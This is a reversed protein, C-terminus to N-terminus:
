VVAIGPSQKPPSGNPNRCAASVAAVRFAPAAFRVLPQLDFIFKTKQTAVNSFNKKRRARLRPHWKTQRQPM